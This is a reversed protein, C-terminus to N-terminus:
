HLTVGEPASEEPQPAFEMEERVRAEELDSMKVFDHAKEEDEFHYMICTALVMFVLALKSHFTLRLGEHDITCEPDDCGTDLFLEIPEYLSCEINGIVDLLGQPDRMNEFTLRVTILPM